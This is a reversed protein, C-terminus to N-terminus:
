KTTFICFVGLHDSPYIFSEKDDIDRVNILSGFNFISGITLNKFLVRDLRRKSVPKPQYIGFTSGDIDPTVVFNIFADNWQLENKLYESERQDEVINFDGCLISAENDLLKTSQEFQIKRVPEDLDGSEFHSSGISINTGGINLNAVVLARGMKSQFDHKTFSLFQVDSRSRKVLMVVGYWGNFTCTTLDSVIYNCQIWKNNSLIELFLKTCEQLGIIDPNLNRLNELSAEFRQKNFSADFWINLTAIRFSTPVKTTQQVLTRTAYDEWGYIEKKFKLKQVTTRQQAQYIQASVNM